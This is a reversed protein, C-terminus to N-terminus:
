TVVVSAVLEDLVVSEEVVSANGVVLMEDVVSMRGLVVSAVVEVSKGLEVLEREGWVVGAYLPVCGGPPLKVSGAPLLV